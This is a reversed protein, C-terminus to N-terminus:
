PVGCLRRVWHPIKMIDSQYGKITARLDRIKSAFDAINDNCEEATAIHRAIDKQYQDIGVTLREITNAREGIVTELRSIESKHIKNQMELSDIRNLHHDVMKKTIAMKTMLTRSQDTVAALSQGLRVCEAELREYKAKWNVRIVSPTEDELTPAPTVEPTYNLIMKKSKTM